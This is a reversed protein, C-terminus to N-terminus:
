EVWKRIVLFETKHHHSTHKCRAFEEIFLRFRNTPSPSEVTFKFAKQTRMRRATHCTNTGISVNFAFGNGFMETWQTKYSVFCTARQSEIPETFLTWQYWTVLLKKRRRWRRRWKRQHIWWNENINDADSRQPFSYEVM